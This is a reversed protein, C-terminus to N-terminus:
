HHVIWCKTVDHGAGVCLISITIKVYKNGLYSFSEMHKVHKKQRQIFISESAVWISLSVGRSNWSSWKCNNFCSRLVELPCYFVLWTVLKAYIKVKSFYYISSHVGGSKLTDFTLGVFISSCFRTSNFKAVSISMHFKEWQDDYIWDPYWYFKVGLCTKTATRM